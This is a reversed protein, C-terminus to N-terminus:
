RQVPQRQQPIRLNNPLWPWSSLVVVMGVVRALVDIALWSCACNSGLAIQGLTSNIVRCLINTKCPKVTKSIVKYQMRNCSYSLHHHHHFSSMPMCQTTANQISGTMILPFGPSGPGALVVRAPFPQAEAPFPPLQGFM